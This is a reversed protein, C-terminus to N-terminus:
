LHLWSRFCSCSLLLPPFPSSLSPVFSSPAGNRSCFTRCRSKHACYHSLVPQCPRLVRQLPARHGETGEIRTIKRLKTPLPLSPSLLPSSVCSTGVCKITARTSTAKIGRPFFIASPIVSGRSLSNNDATQKMRAYNARAAANGSANGHQRDSRSISPSGRKGFIEPVPM